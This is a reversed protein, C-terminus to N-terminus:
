SQKTTFLVHCPQVLFKGHLEEMSGSIEHDLSWGNESKGGLRHRAHGGVTVAPDDEDIDDVGLKPMEKQSPFLVFFFGLYIFSCSVQFCM